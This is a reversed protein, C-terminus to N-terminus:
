LRKTDAFFAHVQSTKVAANQYLIGFHNHRCRFVIGTSKRVRLCVALADLEPELIAKPPLPDPPPLM